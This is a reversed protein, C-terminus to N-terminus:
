TTVMLNSKDSAPHKPDFTTTDLLSESPIKKGTCLDSTVAMYDSGTDFIVRIPQLADSIFLKGV